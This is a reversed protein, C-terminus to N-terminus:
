LNWAHGVEKVEAGSVSRGLSTWREFNTGTEPGPSLRTDTILFLRPQYEDARYRTRERRCVPTATGLTQTPVDRAHINSFLHGLMSPSLRAPVM